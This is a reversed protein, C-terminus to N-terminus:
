RALSERQHPPVGTKAARCRARDNARAARNRRLEEETDPFFGETTRKRRPYHGGRPITIPGSDTMLRTGDYSLPTGDAGFIGNSM